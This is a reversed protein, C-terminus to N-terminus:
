ISVDGFVTEAVRLLLMYMSKLMHGKERIELSGAAVIM